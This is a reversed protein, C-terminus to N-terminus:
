GRGRWIVLEMDYRTTSLYMGSTENRFQEIYDRIIRLDPEAGAAEVMDCANATMEDLTYYVHREGTLPYVTFPVGGDHLWKQLIRYNKKRGRRPIGHLELLARGLTHTNAVYNEGAFNFLIGWQSLSNCAKRLAAPDNLAPSRACFLIDFKEPPEYEAWDSEVYKINSICLAAAATRVRELMVPSIDLATVLRALKAFPLAYTGAGCGLDLVHAGSFEVGHNRITELVKTQFADSERYGPFSRGRINWYEKGGM